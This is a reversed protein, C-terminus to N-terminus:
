LASKVVPMIESPQSVTIFKPVYEIIARGDLPSVMISNVGNLDKVASEVSNVCSACKIDGIQFMVTRVTVDEPTLLLPIKLDHDVGNAEM